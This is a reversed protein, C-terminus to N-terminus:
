IRSIASPWNWYRSRRCSRTPLCRRCCSAFSASRRTSLRSGSVSGPPTPWDTSRPPEAAAAASREHCFPAGTLPPPRVFTLCKVAGRDWAPSPCIDPMYRRWPLWPLLGVEILQVGRHGDLRQALHYDAELRDAQADDGGDAVHARWVLLHPTPGADTVGSGSNRVWSIGGPIFHGPGSLYSMGGIGSFLINHACFSLLGYEQQRTMDM